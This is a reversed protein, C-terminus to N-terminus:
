VLFAGLDDDDDLDLLALDVVDELSGEGVNVQEDASSMDEGVWARSKAHTLHDLSVRSLLPEEGGLLEDIALGEPGGQDLLADGNQLAGAILQNGATATPVDFKFGILLGPDGINIEYERSQFVTPSRTEWWLRM